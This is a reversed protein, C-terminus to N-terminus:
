KLESIEKHMKSRSQVPFYDYNLILKPSYPILVQLYSGKDNNQEAVSKKVMKFQMKESSPSSYNGIM